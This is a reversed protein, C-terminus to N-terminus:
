LSAHFRSFMMFRIIKQDIFCSINPLKLYFGVSNKGTYQNIKVGMNSKEFGILYALCDRKM